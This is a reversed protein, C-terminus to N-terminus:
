AFLLICLSSIQLHVLYHLTGSFYILSICSMTIRNGFWPARTAPPSLLMNLMSTSNCWPDAKLGYRNRMIMSTTAYQTLFYSGYDVINASSLTPRGKHLCILLYSHTGPYTSVILLLYLPIRTLMSFVGNISKAKLCLSYNSRCDM